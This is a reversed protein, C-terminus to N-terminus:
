YKRFISVYAIGNLILKIAYIGSPIDSVSVPYSNAGVQIRSLESKSVTKGTVDIIKLEGYQYYSNSHFEITLANNSPNPFVELPLLRPRYELISVTRCEAPNILDMAVALCFGLQASATDAIRLAGGLQNISINRITDGPGYAWHMLSDAEIVHFLMHTHGLEHLIMSYFDNENAPPAGATGYYWNPIDKILIDIEPVYYLPRFVTGSPDTCFAYETYLKTKALEGAELSDPIGTDFLVLNVSDREYTYLSTDEGVSFNVLTACRWTRLAEEFDNVAPLNTQFDEHYVYRYGGSSDANVLHLFLASDPFSQDPERRVNAIAYSIVLPDVSPIVDGMATTVFFPGTGATGNIGASPVIVQILTDSWILYDPGIAETLTAGGDDANGFSVTGPNVGFGDGVINLISNPHPGGGAIIPNPFFGTIENIGAQYVVSDVAWVFPFLVYTGSAADYYESEGQMLSQEFLADLGPTLGTVDVRVKVVDDAWADVEGLNIPPDAADVAIELVNTGYDTASFSYDTSMTVDGAIITVKGSGALSSGLLSTDYEIFIGADGLEYSGGSVSAEVEFDLYTQGGVQTLQPYSFFYQIFFDSSARSVGEWNRRLQGTRAEIQPFLETEPQRYVHFPESAKPNIGEFHFKVFGQLGAYM